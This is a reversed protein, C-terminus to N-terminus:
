RFHLSIRGFAPDLAGDGGQSLIAVWRVGQAGAAINIWGSDLFVNTQAAPAVQVHGSAGLQIWNGVTFNIAGSLYRARVVSAAAGATALKSVILRAQTYNTLDVEIAGGHTALFAEALAMNTWAWSIGHAFMLDLRTGPVGQPGQAGNSGPAGQAGQAGTGPAGQAGDAGADGQPGQAGVGIPGQAGQEGPPGGPGQAGQAGDQGAAGASGQWGQPGAEGADGQPGSSGPSGQVGASGASGQAGDSGPAGQPGPGGDDGQPGMISAGAEGQAGQVGPAGTQGADGQPGPAGAPGAAGADGQPGQPGPIAVHDYCCDVLDLFLTGVRARTNQKPPSTPADRIATADATLQERSKAM